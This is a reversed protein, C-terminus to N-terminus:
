RILVFTGKRFVEPQCTTKAKIMYVFVNPDQPVGNIKGDWCGGPDTTYFVREGWRNYISFELKTITGWYKIGFCDNKGDNDPTFATPMLYGGTSNPSVKVTVGATNICGSLDTGTVVYLTTIIPTAVPSASNPDNL